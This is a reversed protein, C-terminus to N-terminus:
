PSAIRKLDAIRTLTLDLKRNLFILGGLSGGEGSRHRELGAEADRFTLWSRQATRLRKKGDEDLAALARRYIQNLEIEAADLADSACGM